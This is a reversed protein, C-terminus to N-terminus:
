VPDPGQGRRPRFRRIWPMAAAPPYIGSAAVFVAYAALLLGRVALRAPAELTGALSGIWALLVLAGVVAIPIRWDYAIRAERRAARAAAVALATYAVVTALAAGFAGWRPIFLLNLGANLAAAFLVTTGVIRTRGTALLVNNVIVYIGFAMFGLALPFVLDGAGTYFPDVDFLLVLLRMGDETFLSLALVAAGTWVVYHRMARPYFRDEGEALAKMGLVTFATQFSQVFLMNVLGAIRAAWDYGAVARPDALWKLLYRDGANLFWGALSALVLPLGYALLPKLAMRDFRREGTVLLHGGMVAASLGASAAHALMVGELGMGRATLLWWALAVLAVLESATAIVFVGARERTRLVTMPVAAVAKFAVYAALAWVLRDRAPDDLLFAAFPGAAASLLGAAVVAAVVSAALATFPLADRDLSGSPDSLHKVLGTSLGMGVVYIGLQASTMLLAFYGFQEVGLYAPNLLLPALALGAAKVAANGVAYIGSQRALRELLSM